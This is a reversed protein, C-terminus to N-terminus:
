DGAGNRLEHMAFVIEPDVGSQTDSISANVFDEQLEPHKTMADTVSIIGPSVSKNITNAMQGGIVEGTKNRHNEDSLTGSLAIGAGTAIGLVKARKAVKIGTLKQMVGKAKDKPVADFTFNLASKLNLHRFTEEFSM